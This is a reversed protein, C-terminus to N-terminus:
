LLDYWAAIAEKKRVNGFISLRRGRLYLSSLYIAADEKCIQNASELAKEYDKQRAYIDVLQRERINYKEPLEEAVSFAKEYEKKYLYLSILTERANLLCGPDNSHNM